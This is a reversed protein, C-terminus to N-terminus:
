LVADRALMWGKGPVTKIIQPNKPEAEIVMRLRGIAMDFAKGEEEKGARCVAMEWINSGWLEDKTIIRDPNNLFYKLLKDSNITLKRVTGDLHIERRSFDVLAGGNLMIKKTQAWSVRGSFFRKKIRSALVSPFTSNGNVVDDVGYDFLQKEVKRKPKDILVMAIANPNKLRFLSFFEFLQKSANEYKILSLVYPQDQLRGIAAEISFTKHLEIGLSKLEHALKYQRQYNCGVYLACNKGM